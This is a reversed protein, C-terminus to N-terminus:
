RRRVAATRTWRRSRVSSGTRCHTCASPRRQWSSPELHRPRDVSCANRWGLPGDGGDATEHRSHVGWSQVSRHIWWRLRQGRRRENGAVRWGRRGSKSVQACAHVHRLNHSLSFFMFFPNDCLCPPRSQSKTHPHRGAITCHEPACGCHVPSAWGCLDLLPARVRLHDLGARWFNAGNLVRARAPQLDNHPCPRPFRQMLTLHTWKSQML